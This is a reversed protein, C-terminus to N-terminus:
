VSREGIQVRYLSAIKVHLINVWVGHVDIGENAKEIWELQVLSSLQRIGAGWVM